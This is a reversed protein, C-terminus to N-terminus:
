AGAYGLGASSKTIGVASSRQGLGLLEALRAEYSDCTPCNGSPEVWDPHQIRLADHIEQQLESYSRLPRILINDTKM